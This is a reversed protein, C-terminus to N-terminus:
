EAVEKSDDRAAYKSSIIKLIKREGTKMITETPPRIVVGEAIQNPAISSNGEALEKVKEFDYKGRYLVPVTELGLNNCIEVVKDWDEYKGKTLQIDFVRFNIGDLGYELDQVRKGFLEGRIILDSGFNQLKEELGLTDFIHYFANTQFQMDDNSLLARDRTFRVQRSMVSVETEYSKQTVPDTYPLTIAYTANMGHIKETVIIDDQGSFTHIYDPRTLRSIHMVDLWVPWNRMNIGKTMGRYLKQEPKWHGIELQPAINSYLLADKPIADYTLPLFLGQSTIGAMKMAKVRGKKLRDLQYHDIMKQPLISDVYVFLGTDGEKFDSKRIILPYGGIEIVGIRDKGEIPKIEPCLFLGAYTDEGTM